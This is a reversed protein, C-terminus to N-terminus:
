KEAMAMFSNNLDVGSVFVKKFKSEMYWQIIEPTFVSVHKRNNWPRWYKQSASPLYLFMVGGERLQSYWYDLVDVWKDLHELCHSSFVYDFGGEPPNPLKMAHYKKDIEPDVPYAGPFAWELRNCGVDVGHGKCVEKAFPFAFKSAFGTTQFHPYVEDKFEITHIM